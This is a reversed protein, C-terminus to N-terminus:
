FDVSFMATVRGEQPYDSGDYEITDASMAGAIDLRAAWLNLGIGATYVLGIDSEALNKYIGCRLALVKYLNWEVGLSLNQTDYDSLITENKTIDYNVEVTLTDWPMYAVGAALQPDIKVDAATIMQEAGSPLVIVKSFGDFKPSNLNRGVLGFSFHKYWGLVGLDIGFTSTEQFHEETEALLDGSDNDFVLLQNGYVRGKMAKINGGISIYENIAYGYSIPVEAYAFGTLLITTTNASLEGGSGSATAVTALLPVFEDLQTSTVGYERAAFDLRQIAEATFGATVLQAHQAASFLSVAGDNGDIDISEIQPNVTALNISFGLNEDDLNLVRSSAQTYTRLGIGYNDVRVGFGASEDATVGTGPQDIGTLAGIIKILDELDGQTSIGDSLSDLDVDALDDVYQGFEGHLRYGVAAGLDVGWVKDGRDSMDANTKKGKSDNTNFFAFAAPNYYQASTDKVSVVNAGGMGMARPSVFFSDLAFALSPALAILVVLLSLNVVKKVSCCRSKSLAVKACNKV